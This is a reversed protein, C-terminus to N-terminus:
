SPRVIWALKGNDGATLTLRGDPYWTRANQHACQEGKANSQGGDATTVKRTGDAAADSVDIVVGVHEGSVAKGDYTAGEHTVCYYDGPEPAVGKKIWGRKQAGEYVRLIHAGPVFSAGPAVPDDPKRNVMEVPWGAKGACYAAFIGCTTGGKVKKGDKENVYVAFYGWAAGGFSDGKRGGLIADWTPDPPQLVADKSPLVELAASRLDDSMSKGRKSSKSDSGSPKAPGFVVKRVLLGVLAMAGGTALYTLGKKAIPGM